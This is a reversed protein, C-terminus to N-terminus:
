PKKRWVFKVQRTAAAVAEIENRSTTLAKWGGVVADGDCKVTEAVHHKPGKLLSAPLLGSAKLTPLPEFGDAAFAVAGALAV